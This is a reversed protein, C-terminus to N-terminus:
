VAIDPHNLASRTAEDHQSFLRDIPRLTVSWQHSSEVAHRGASGLGAHRGDLVEAIRQVTEHVGNALLIDRGPVAQVGEFAEPTAVVPRAMAMAELLKNQIGRAIRLPAIVVDAAALWPRTDPVRGTVQVGPLAALARVDSAPAAGVIWFRASPVRQRLVPLVERAFWQVADINPWYDMRGTFVIDAGKGEFPAMFHHAPSFYDCTSATRSGARGIFQRRRWHSSTSGNMSPSSSATISSRPPAVSSLWCRVARARGFPGLLFGRPKPTPPRIEASDVDVMDLVRRVGSAHMVYTAMSSSFVYVGAMAGGTLSQMSGANCDGITSIALRCRNATACACCRNSIAFARIFQCACCTRAIRACNLSISGIPASRRHLLRSAHSTNAGLHRFVNWARIKDGKDPPFPIRHALFLLDRMDASGACSQRASCIPSPLPLKKWAAIFLRYKPNLPNHDPIAAGPALRYRYHLKEPEFGWNHKFAFAGTGLKSRGFDFLRFGREAARRMVEWYMFDNGARHRAEATGGGYYPLVEDRFYFNMVSAIPRGDDLVTVIDSCDSFTRSLIEFYRRSFM